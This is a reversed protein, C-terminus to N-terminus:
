SVFALKGNSLTEIRSNDMLWQVVQIAKDRATGFHNALVEPLLPEASLLEIIKQELTRFESNKLGSEHMGTCVDCIGCVPPFEQGFYKLLLQSRCTTKETVYRIVMNIRREFMEKRFRFSDSSIYLTKDDLREELYTILPTHKRPIYKIMKLSSLKLLYQYVQDVTLKARNAIVKEDISTFDSFMGSYSRLLLKVFADFSANAVQFKYLDDRGVTFHIRSPNNVDESFEIYGEKELIKLSNYAMIIQFRYNSCFEALNFDYSVLKGGGLPVQLYNGLAQYVQKIYSIEPFHLGIEKNLQVRDAQNTIFIAFATKGDRGARGAEQFYAELSLPATEHIVFRVDAKDIGMGFANTSVIVRCRGAKWDDQRKHRLEDDLGAHYFDAVVGNKFLFQAIEKAKKRNRVYVIGSGKLSNIIKLIFAPKDEAERVLYAINKREFSTSLVHYEPFHLKDQIDKIVEPTATATLALVPVEPFFKRVEAIQHYAPRFDYGWQSICHAEDVAILNIKMLQVRVKFMETLLREPSLYLFKYDGYIANNLAIDIEDRDLGSHIVLAKIEKRHLTEVQDKMLAILPTIVLCIGDKLLAPLQFTISKGGGTPMLALTDKGSLVAQIIEEQLPRFSNYGWYKELIEVPALM